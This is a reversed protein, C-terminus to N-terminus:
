WSEHQLLLTVCIHPTTGDALCMTHVFVSVHHFMHWNLPHHTLAYGHMGGM